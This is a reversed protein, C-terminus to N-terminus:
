AGYAFESFENLWPSRSSVVRNGVVCSISLLIVLAILGVQSIRSELETPDPM